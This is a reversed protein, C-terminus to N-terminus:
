DENLINSIISLVNYEGEKKGNLQYKLVTYEGESEGGVGDWLFWCCLLVSFVTIIIGMAFSFPKQLSM